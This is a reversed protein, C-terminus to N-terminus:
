GGFIRTTFANLFKGGPDQATRVAQFKAFREGYTQAMERATFSTKKGLHPQGQHARFIEETAAYVASTDQSLPTALEIYATRRGVGPGLLAASRDPTFRVEVISFFNRRALLEIIEGVVQRWAAHPVGYEIEDHRYFLKRGFGQSSPMVLRHDPALANSLTSDEDIQAILEAAKPVFASIAFDSLEAHAKLKQWNGTLAATTRNWCHMRMSESHSGGGVYYFSVHENAALLAEINAETEARDVMQTTKEIHFADVLSLEVETVVGCTGLAGFVAHFLPDGARVTRANGDAAIVRLSRVQESLFGHDRGTGHLDTAILGAISQADTSGLVPLALGHDWLASNLDRLRIGAQVRATRTAGDIALVRNQADLSIMTQPSLPSDNFTHGGGVMRLKHAARVDHVLAAEDAPLLYAQPRERYSDTWNRWTGDKFHGEHETAGTTLFLGGQVLDFLTNQISM